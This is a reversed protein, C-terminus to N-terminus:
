PSREQLDQVFCKQGVSVGVADRLVIESVLDIEKRSMGDWRVIVRNTAISAELKVSM